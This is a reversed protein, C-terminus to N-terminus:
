MLYFILSLYPGILLHIEKDEIFYIYIRNKPLFFIIDDKFLTSFCNETKEQLLFYERFMLFNMKTM